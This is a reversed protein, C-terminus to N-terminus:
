LDPTNDIIIRIMDISENTGYKIVIYSNGNTDISRGKTTLDWVGKQLHAKKKNKWKKRLALKV